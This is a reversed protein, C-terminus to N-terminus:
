QEDNVEKLSAEIAKAKEVLWDEWGLGAGKEIDVAIRQLTSALSHETDREDNYPEIHGEQLSKVLATNRERLQDILTANEAVLEAGAQELREVEALKDRLSDVLRQGGLAADTARVLEARDSLEDDKRRIIAAAQCDCGGARIAESCTCMAAHSDELGAVYATQLAKEVDALVDPYRRKITGIHIADDGNIARHAKQTWDNDNMTAERYPCVASGYHVGGCRDCNGHNDIENSM